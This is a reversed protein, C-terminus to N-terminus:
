WSPGPRHSRETPRSTHRPDDHTLTRRSPRSDSAYRSYKPQAPQAAPRQCRVAHASMLLQLEHLSLRQALDGIRVAERFGQNPVAVSCTTTVSWWSTLVVDVVLNVEDACAKVRSRRTSREVAQRIAYWTECAGALRRLAIAQQGGARGRSPPRPLPRLPRDRARSTRRGASRCQVVLPKFDPGAPARRAEGASAASLLM